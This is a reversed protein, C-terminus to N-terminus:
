EEVEMIKPGKTNLKSIYFNAQLHEERLIELCKEQVECSESIGDCLIFLSPGSGSIGLGMGFGKKNFGPLFRQERALAAYHPIHAKRQPTIINDLLGRSIGERDGDVLSLVLNAISITQKVVKDMSIQQALQARSEGTKISLEPHILCFHLDLSPHLPIKMVDLPDLQKAIVIGGLLSAAINDCHGVSTNEARKEANFALHLLEIPGLPNNMLENLAYLAAIISAASSGLGSEIPMKKHLEFELGPPSGHGQIKPHNLFLHGVYGLINEKANHPLRNNDGKVSVLRIEPDSLPRVIVEDGIGELAAGIIDFGPGLNAVTAPAFAKVKNKM